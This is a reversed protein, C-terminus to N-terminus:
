ARPRVRVGRPGAPAAIGNTMFDVALPDKGPELTVEYDRLLRAVALLIEQRALNRGLCTHVGKGYPLWHASSPPKGPGRPGALFRDPDFVMPDTYVAPDHHLIYASFGIMSRAPLTYPGVTMPTLTMRLHFPGVYRRLVEHYVANLLPMAKLAAGGIAEGHARRAAALEDDVRRKLGPDALIHLLCMSATAPTNATTAFMYGHMATALATLGFPQGERDRLGLMVDLFGPEGDGERRRELEAVIRAVARDRLALAERVVGRAYPNKILRTSAVDFACVDAIFGADHALRESTLLLATLRVITRTMVQMVDGRGGALAEALALKMEADLAEGAGTVRPPLWTRLAELGANDWEPGTSNMDVVDAIGPLTALAELFSVEDLKATYFHQMFEPDQALTVTRGLMYLTFPSGRRAHQDRLWAPGGRGFRLGCGLFPIHWGVVPPRSPDRHARVTDGWRTLQQRVSELIM